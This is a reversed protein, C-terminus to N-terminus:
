LFDDVGCSRSWVWPAPCGSRGEAVQAWGVALEDADARRCQLVVQETNARDGAASSRAVVFPLRGTAEDLLAARALGVRDGVVEVGGDAEEVAGARDGLGVGVVGVAVGEGGAAGAGCGVEAVGAAVGEGDRTGAQIVEAGAVVVGCLGAPGLGVRELLVAAEGLGVSEDIDAPIRDIV